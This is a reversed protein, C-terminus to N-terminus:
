KFIIKLLLFIQTKKVNFMILEKINEFREKQKEVIQLYEPKYYKAFHNKVNTVSVKIEYSANCIDCKLKM